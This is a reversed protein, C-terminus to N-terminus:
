QGWRTGLCPTGPTSVQGGQLTGLVRKKKGLNKNFKNCYQKQKISQNKPRLTHPIKAGLGPISGADGINSPSTKVM